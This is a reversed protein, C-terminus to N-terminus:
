LKNNEHKKLIKKLKNITLSFMIINIIWVYFIFNLNNSIIHAIFAGISIILFVFNIIIKRKIKRKTKRIKNILLNNEKILKQYQYELNQIQNGLDTM